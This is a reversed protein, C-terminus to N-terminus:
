FPLLKINGTTSFKSIQIERWDEINTKYFGIAEAIQLVKDKYSVLISEGDSKHIFLCDGNEIGADKLLQFIQQKTIKTAWYTKEM